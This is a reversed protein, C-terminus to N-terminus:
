KVKELAHHLGKKGGVKEGLTFSGADGQSNRKRPLRLGYSRSWLSRGESTAVSNGPKGLRHRNQSGQDNVYAGM